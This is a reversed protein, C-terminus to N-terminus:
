ATMIGAGGGLASNTAKIVRVRVYKPEHSETSCDIIGNSRTAAVTAVTIAHTHTNTSTNNYSGTTNGWVHGSLQGGMSATHNHAPSTHTHTISAHNHTLNGGSAVASDSQNAVKIYCDTEIGADVWGIPLPDAELWFAIDGAKLIANSVNSLFAFLSQYKLTITDTSGADTKTYADPTDAGNDITVQHRHGISSMSPSDLHFGGIHGGTEVPTGTQVTSHGHQNATHQHTVSHAHNTAGVNDGADNGAQAGRLYKGEGATFYPLSRTKDQRLVIGNLPILNYGTSRIFIVTKSPPKHDVSSWNPSADQDNVAAPMSGSNVAGHYHAGIMDEPPNDQHQIDATHADTGFTLGHVHADVSHTHPNSTHQHTDSGGQAYSAGAKVNRDDMRTERVWNAPIDAELGYFPLVLNPVLM